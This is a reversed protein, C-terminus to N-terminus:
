DNGSVLAGGMFAICNGVLRQIGSGGEGWVSPPFVGLAMVTGADNISVVKHNLRDRAIVKGWSNLPPDSFNAISPIQVDTTGIGYFLDLYDPDISDTDLVDFKGVAPSNGVPSYPSEAFRGGISYGDGAFCYQASVVAGGSDVYDALLDGVGDPDQFEVGAFVLVVDAGQLDALDPAATRANVSTIETEPHFVGSLVMDRALDDMETDAGFAGVFTLAFPQPTAGEGEPGQPGVTGDDGSCGPFVFLVLGVVILFAFQKM